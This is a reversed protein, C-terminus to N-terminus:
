FYINVGTLFELANLDKEEFFEDNPKAFTIRGEFRYAIFDTLMIDFGAMGMGTPIWEDASNSIPIQRERGKRELVIYKYGAGAGLYFNFAYNRLPELRLTGWSQMARWFSRGRGDLEHVQGELWLRKPRGAGYQYALDGSISFVKLFYYKANAEFHYLYMFEDRIDPDEPISPGVVFGASLGCRAETKAHSLSPAAILAALLIISTSFRM